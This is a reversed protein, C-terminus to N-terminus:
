LSELPGSPELLQRHPGMRGQSAEGPGSGFAVGEDAAPEYWLDLKKNM